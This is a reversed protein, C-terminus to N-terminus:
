NIPLTGPAPIEFSLHNSNPDWQIADVATGNFQCPRDPGGLVTVLSKEADYFLRDGQFQKEADDYSIRGTASLTSLELGGAMTEDFFAEIHGAGAKVPQGYNADIVPVYGIDLLADSAADAVIRNADMYYRLTAFNSVLAYCRRRFSFKQSPKNPEPANSNDVKIDGPGTATFMRTTTDYEFRRCKLEVGSLVKEHAKRISSLSVSGGDATLHSMDPATADSSAAGPAALDVTITPAALTYQQTGNPDRTLMTCVAGGEFMVQNSSPLFRAAEKATVSVPVAPANTECGTPDNVDFVLEVPGAAITSGASADHDIRKAILLTRGAREAFDGAAPRRTKVPQDPSRAFDQLSRSSNMPLVLIGNDCTIVIDYDEEPPFSHQNPEVLASEPAPAPPAAAESRPTATPSRAPALPAASADATAATTQSNQDAPEEFLINVVAIEDDAIVLQEPTDIIVNDAFLCKYHQPQSVPAQDSKPEPGPQKPSTKPSTKDQSKSPAPAVTPAEKPPAKETAFLGAQSSKLRLSQLHTIRLYELKSQQANYAGELGAGVMRADASVLRVPGATSFHSRESVFAIDDLYLFAEKMRSQNRPMIHLVVNGFLSGETPTLGGTVKEVRLLGNDATIKCLFNPDVIDVYPQDLEWMEGAQRLLKSFGFIRDIRNNEDTHVFKAIEGGVKAVSPGPPALNSDDHDYTFERPASLDIKGTAGIKQYLLYIVSLVALTVLGIWFKRV